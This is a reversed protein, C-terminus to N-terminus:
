LSYMVKSDVPLRIKLPSSWYSLRDRIQCHKVNIDCIEKLKSSKVESKASLICGLNFPCVVLTM